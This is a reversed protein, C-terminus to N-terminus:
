RSPWLRPSSSPKPRDGADHVKQDVLREAAFLITIALVQVPINVNLLFSERATAGRQLGQAHALAAPVLYGALVTFSALWPLSPRGNRLM